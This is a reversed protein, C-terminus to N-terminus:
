GEGNHDEGEKRDKVINNIKNKLEEVINEAKEIELFRIILEGGASTVIVKALGYYRDVPGQKVQMKHVREIPVISRTIYIFGEIIDIKEDNICYKYRKFRISPSILVYLIDISLIVILVLLLIKNIFNDVYNNSIFYGIVLISSTIIWRILTGVFMCKKAKKNLDKYM